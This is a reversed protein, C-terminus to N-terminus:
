QWGEPARDKHKTKLHRILNGKHAHSRYCYPCKFPKEGTHSRLHIRLAGPTSLIKWCNVCTHNVLKLPINNKQFHELLDPHEEFITEIDAFYPYFSNYLHNTSTPSFAIKLVIKCHINDEFSLM